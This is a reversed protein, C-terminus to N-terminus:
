KSEQQLEQKLKSFYRTAFISVILLALIMFTFSGSILNITFTVGFIISLWKFITHMLKISDANLFKQKQEM